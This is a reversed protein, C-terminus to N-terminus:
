LDYYNSSGHDPPVRREQATDYLLSSMLKPALCVQYQNIETRSQQQASNHREGKGGVGVGERGFNM